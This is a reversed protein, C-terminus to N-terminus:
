WSQVASNTGLGSPVQVNVQYLGVFGPSLGAFSVPAFIGGIAVAVGASVQSLSSGGAATGDAPPNSVAGLGSTYITIYEGAMAPRSTQGVIAAVPAVFTTTNAIQVAGQNPLGAIGGIIFIGPAAPTIPVTVAPSPGGSTTVVLIASAMTQLEWPVQFNIQTSSVFFLGCNLGGMTVSTSGLTTPLPLGGAGLTALALNTGFISGIGGASIKASFGAGEVVGNSPVSPPATTTAANLTFSVSFLPNGNDYVRAQWAGFHAPPQNSIGLAAGTFCFFGSEASWNGGAFVDGNPALWDSTLSDANTVTAEFYLYITGNSPLFSNAAPPATCGSSPPAQTTARQNQFTVSSPGTGALAILQPSDPANDSISVQATRTGSATPKFTLSITCISGAPLAAGICTTTGSFDSYNAGTFTLNTVNLTAPSSLVPLTDYNGFPNAAIGLNTLTVTQTASATGVASSAFTLSRGSLVVEPKFADAWHSALANADVSGLGTVPDWGPGASYGQQGPVSNNGTTVDHFVLGVDRRAALAYLGPNLNGQFTGTKQVLLAVIGAFAPAAASTGGSASIPSAPGCQPATDCVIYPDHNAAATLSVDPVGRWATNNGLQWSPKAWIISYGGGSSWLDSGGPVTGSENWAVEPIYGLASGQSSWYQSPNAVDGNFQTGGVCVSYPSSCAPSVALGGTATTSADLDCGAAGSDGSITIPSIGQMAGQQWIGNWIPAAGDCGFYSLSIVAPLRTTGALKSNVLGAAAVQNSVASVLWIRAQQAVAGAWELDLFAEGSDDSNCQPPSGFYESYISATYIREYNWYAPVASLNVVCPEIVAIDVGNGAIGSSYLPSVNYITAFDSPALFHQGNGAVVAPQHPGNTRRPSRHPRFDHLGVVGEVFDSLAEPIAPETSNARHFEGDTRYYRITTHFASNVQAVTGSFVVMWRGTFVDNITFGGNKLWAVVQDLDRQSAGFHEGFAEPTLWQHYRTSRPDTQAAALAEMAATQDPDRKLTLIMHSMPLDGPAPGADFEKRAKPHVNGPLTVTFNNDIRRAIRDRPFVALPDLAGSRSNAADPAQASVMWPGLLLVCM